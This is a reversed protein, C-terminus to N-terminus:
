PLGEKGEDSCCVGGLGRHDAPPSQSTHTHPSNPTLTPSVGLLDVGHDVTMVRRRLVHELDPHPLYTCVQQQKELVVLSLRELATLLQVIRSPSRRLAPVCLDRTLRPQEAFLGLIKARDPDITSFVVRRLVELEHDTMGTRGHILTLGRGLLRLQQLARYPEEIQVEVIERSMSDEDYETILVGRGRALLLSLDNLECKQLDSEPEVTPPSATLEAFLNAVLQTMQSWKGAQGAEDWMREFGEERESHTLAPLRFMLFRSGIASMHRQHQKIAQPTICAVLNFISEAELLGLTGTAKRYSGDYISQLEGLIQKVKEDKSSFLTTLDKIVVLKKNLEPLLQKELGKGRIGLRTNGESVYGSLFSNETLNDLFYVSPLTRLPQLGATKFSSPSAVLLLWLPIPHDARILSLSALGALMLEIADHAHPSSTLDELTTHIQFLLSGPKPTMPQPTMSSEAVDPTVAQEQTPTMHLNM